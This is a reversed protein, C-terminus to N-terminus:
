SYMYRKSDSVANSWFVFDLSKPSQDLVVYVCMCVYPAFTAMSKIPYGCDRKPITIGAGSLYIVCWVLRQVPYNM